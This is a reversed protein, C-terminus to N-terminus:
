GGESEETYHKLGDIISFNSLKMMKISRRSNALEDKSKKLLDNWAPTQKFISQFIDKDIMFLEATQSIVVATTM